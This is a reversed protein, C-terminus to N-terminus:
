ATRRLFCLFAPAGVTCFCTTHRAAAGSVRVECLDQSQPESVASQPQDSNSDNSVEDDDEADSDAACDEHVAHASM